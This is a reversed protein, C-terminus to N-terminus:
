AEDKKGGAMLYGLENEDAESGKVTGTIKGEFIVQIQDSLSM